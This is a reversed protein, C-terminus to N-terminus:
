RWEWSQLDSTGGLSGITPGVPIRGEMGVVTIGTIRYDMDISSITGLYSTAYRARGTGKFLSTKPYDPFLNHGARYTVNGTKVHTLQVQAVGALVPGYDWFVKYYYPGAELKLKVSYKNNVIDDYDYNMHMVLEIDSKSYVSKGNLLSIPTQKEQVSSSSIGNDSENSTAFVLPTTTMCLVLMSAVVMKRLKM